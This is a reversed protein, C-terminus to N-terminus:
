ARCFSSKEQIKNDKYTLKYENPILSFIDSVKLCLFVFLRQNKPSFKGAVDYHNKTNYNCDYEKM